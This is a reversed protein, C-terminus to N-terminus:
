CKLILIAYLLEGHFTLHKNFHFFLFPPFVVSDSCIWFWYYIDYFYISGVCLYMVSLKGDKICASWYFFFTSPNHAWVETRLSIIRQCSFFYNLLYYIFIDELCFLFSENTSIYRFLWFYLKTIYRQTIINVFELDVAIM